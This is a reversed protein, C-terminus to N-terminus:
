REVSGMTMAPEAKAEELEARFCHPAAAPVSRDVGSSRGYGRAHERMTVIRRREALADLAKAVLQLKGAAPSRMAPFFGLDDDDDCGLFDLPHLLLSPEVRRLDCLRLAFRFYAMALRESFQAM